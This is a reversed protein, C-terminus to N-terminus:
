AHFALCFHFVSSVHQSTPQKRINEAHIDWASGARRKRRGDDRWVSRDCVIIVINFMGRPALKVDYSAEDIRHWHMSATSAASATSAMCNSRLSFTRIRLFPVQAQRVMLWLLQCECSLESELAWIAWAWKGAVSWKLPVLNFALSTAMRRRILFSVMQCTAQMSWLSSTAMKPFPGAM